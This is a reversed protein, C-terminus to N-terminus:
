VNRLLFGSVQANTNTGDTQLQLSEGSYAVMMTNNLSTSSNAQLVAFWVMYGALYFFVNAPTATYNRAVISKVVARQGAPVTYYSVGAAGHQLLFRESYAQAV